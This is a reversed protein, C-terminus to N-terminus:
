LVDTCVLILSILFLVTKWNLLTAAKSELFSMKSLDYTAKLQRGSRRGEQLTLVMDSLEETSRQWLFFPSVFVCDSDYMSYIKFSAHFKM